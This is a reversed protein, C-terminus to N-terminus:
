IVGGAHRSSSSDGIGNSIQRAVWRAAASHSSCQTLLQCRVDFRPRDAPTYMHRASTAIQTATVLGSPPDSAQLKMDVFLHNCSGAAVVPRRRTSAIKVTRPLRRRLAPVPVISGFGKVADLLHGVQSCARGEGQGGHTHAQGRCGRLRDRRRCCELGGRDRRLWGGPACVDALDVSVQLGGVGAGGELLREGM